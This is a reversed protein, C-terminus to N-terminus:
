VGPLEIPSKKEPNARFFAATNGIRDIPDSGTKEAIVGIAADRQERGGANVKIKILEHHDLALGIEALVAETLGAQGITVVPKLHHVQKKLWRKQRDTIKMRPVTPLIDSPKRPPPSLSAWTHPRKYQATM